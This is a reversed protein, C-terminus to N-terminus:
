SWADKGNAAVTMWKKNPNEIKKYPSRAEIKEALKKLEEDNKWNLKM